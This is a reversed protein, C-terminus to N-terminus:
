QLFISKNVPRSNSGNLNKLICNEFTIRSGSSCRDLFAHISNRSNIRFPVSAVNPFGTGSFRVTGSLINIKKLIEFLEPINNTSVTDSKIQRAFIINSFTLSDIKQSNTQSFSSSHFSVTLLLLFSFKKYFQM